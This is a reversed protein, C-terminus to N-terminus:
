RCQLRVSPIPPLYHRPQARNDAPSSHFLCVRDNDPGPLRPECEAVLEAATTNCVLHELAAADALAPARLPPFGEVQQGRVPEVAQASAGGVGVRVTKQM